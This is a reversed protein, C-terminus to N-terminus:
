VKLFYIHFFYSLLHNQLQLANEIGGKSLYRRLSGTSMMVYFDNVIPIHWKDIIEERIRRNTEMLQSFTMTKIKDLSIQNNIKEFNQLFAPVSKTLGRFMRLIRVFLVIFGPVKKIKTWTSLKDDEIFDVPDTLGMMAEMDEKNKGFSPLLRLGQYWNNINYYIRGRIIGLLNNLIARRIDGDTVTGLLKDNDDTVFLIKEATENLRQMSEKLTTDSSVLLTRLKTKDM